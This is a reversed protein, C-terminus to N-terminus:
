SVQGSQWAVLLLEFQVQFAMFTQLKCQCRSSFLCFQAAVFLPMDRKVKLKPCARSYYFPPTQVEHKFSQLFYILCNASQLVSGGLLAPDFVHIYLVFKFMCM